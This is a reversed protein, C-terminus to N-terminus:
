DEQVGEIAITILTTPLKAVMSVLQVITQISAAIPVALNAHIVYIRIQYRSIAVDVDKLAILIESFCIIESVVVQASTRLLVPSAIQIVYSADRQKRITTADM